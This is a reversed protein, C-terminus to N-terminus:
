ANQTPAFTLVFRAGGGPRDEVRVDGEHLEAIRRVLALGIGTGGRRNEARWLRDFIRQKNCDPVGPGRDDVVVRADAALSVVVAAGVPSATIANSVINRIAADILAASGTVLVSSCPHFDILVGKSIAVEALDVCVRRACASLDIAQLSSAMEAEAQAFRLLENTLEALNQLESAVRDRPESAPLESVQLALVALPTRLEHAADSTFQQQLRRAREMRALMVNLAHVVEQFERPLGSSPLPALGRGSGVALGLERAHDTIRALPRLALRVTIIMAITLGPVVVLVPLIVHDFLEQALADRWMWAPDGFMIAQIWYAHGVSQDRYTLIWGARRRGGRMDSVIELGEELNQDLRSAAESGASLEGLLGANAAAVVHRREPLRRDFARFGYSEPYLRYIPDTAPDYRNRLEKSIASVLQLLTAQRLEREDVLYRTAFFGILCLTLVSAVAAMRLAIIRPLRPARRHPM